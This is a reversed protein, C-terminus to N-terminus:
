SRAAKRVSSVQGLLLIAVAPLALWSTEPGGVAAGWVALGGMVPWLLLASSRGVSSEFGLGGFRIPFRADGPVERLGWASVGVMVGVLALGLPVM